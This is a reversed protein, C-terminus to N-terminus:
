AIFVVIRFGCRRKWSFIINKVSRFKTVYFKDIYAYNIKICM